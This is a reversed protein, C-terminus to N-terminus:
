WTIMVDSGLIGRRAEICAEDDGIPIVPNSGASRLSSSGLDLAGALEGPFLAEWVRQPAALIFAGMGHVVALGYHFWETKKNEREDLLYIPTVSTKWSGFRKGKETRSKKQQISCRVNLRTPFLVYM